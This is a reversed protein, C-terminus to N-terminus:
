GADCWGLHSQIEAKLHLVDGHEDDLLAMLERAVRPISTDRLVHHLTASLDPHTVELRRWPNFRDGEATNAGCAKLYRCVLGFGDVGVCQWAALKEGRLYRKLGILINTLAERVLWVPDEPTPDTQPAGLGPDVGERLWVWRGASFPIHALESPHFVAFECFVGNLALTKWGDQTNRHAFVLPSGTQLWSLDAIFRAKAMEEVIVFFDLDSYADLRHTDAGCSGLALLGLAQDDRSLQGAIRDLAGWLQDSTIARTV